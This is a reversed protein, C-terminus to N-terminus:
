IKLKKPELARLLGDSWDRAIFYKTCIFKAFIFDLERLANSSYRLFANWAVFSFSWKLHRKLSADAQMWVALWCPIHAASNPIQSCKKTTTFDYEFQNGYNRSLFTHGVVCQRRQYICIFNLANIKSMQVAEIRLPFNHHARTMKELSMSRSVDEIYDVYDAWRIRLKCFWFRNFQQQWAVCM